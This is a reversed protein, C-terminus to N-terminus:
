ILQMLRSTLTDVIAQSSSFEAPPRRAEDQREKEYALMSAHHARKECVLCRRAHVQVQQHGCHTYTVGVVADVGKEISQELCTPSAAHRASVLYSKGKPHTLAEPLLPPASPPFWYQDEQEVGAETATDPVRYMRFSAKTAGPHDKVASRAKIPGTRQLTTSRARLSSGRREHEYVGSMRLDGTTSHNDGVRDLESSVDDLLVRSLM